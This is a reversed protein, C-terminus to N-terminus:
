SVQKLVKAPNGAAFSYPPISKTVISGAAIISGQGITVGRTIIVHNNIWVNNEIIIPATVITSKTDPLGKRYLEKFRQARIESEPEHASTDSIHVLHSILVNEGILIKEGSWIRSDPGLYTGNGINIEGGYPFVLLEGDIITEGQIKIKHRNLPSNVVKSKPGFRVDRGFDCYASWKDGKLDALKLALSDAPILSLLIRGLKNKIRQIM